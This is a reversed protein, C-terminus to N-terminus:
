SLGLLVSIVLALTYLAGLVVIMGATAAVYGGRNTLTPRVM